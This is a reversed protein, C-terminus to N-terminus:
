MKLFRGRYISREAQLQVVYMGEPLGSVEIELGNSGELLTSARVLQGHYDYIFYRANELQPEPLSIKLRDTVPVPSLQLAAKEAWVM